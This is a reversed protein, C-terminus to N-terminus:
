KGKLSLEAAGVFLNNNALTELKDLYDAKEVANRKSSSLRLIARTIFDNDDDKPINKLHTQIDRIGNILVAKEKDSMPVRKLRDILDRYIRDIRKYDTDYLPELTDWNATVEIGIMLGIMVAAGAVSIVAAIIIGSLLGFAPILIYANTITMASIAVLLSSMVTPAQMYPQEDGWDNKSVDMLKRLSTSLPLGGGMRSVFQDAMSENAQGDWLRTGHVSVAHTVARTAIVNRVTQKNRTNALAKAEREELPVYANMRNLLEIRYEVDQKDTWMDHINELIHNAMVLRGLMEFHGFIHGLEHFLVATTEEATMVGNKFWAATLHVRISITSFEGSIKPIDLNVMGTITEGLSVLKKIRTAAPHRRWNVTLAHNIDLGPPITWACHAPIERPHTLRSDFSTEISNRDDSTEAEAKRRQQEEEWKTRDFSEYAKIIAKENDVDYGRLYNYVSLHITLGLKKFVDNIGCKDIMDRTAYSAETGAMMHRLSKISKVADQFLKTSRQHKIQEETYGSAWQYLDSM